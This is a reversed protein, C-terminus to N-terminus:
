FDVHPSLWRCVWCLDAGLARGTHANVGFMTFYNGSVFKGPYSEAAAINHARRVGFITGGAQFAALQQFGKTNDRFHKYLQYSVIAFESGQSYGAWVCCHPQNGL